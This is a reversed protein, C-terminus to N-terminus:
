IEKRRHPHQIDATILQGQRKKWAYYASTSVQMVRCLATVPYQM